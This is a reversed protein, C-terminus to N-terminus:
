KEEDVLTKNYEKIKDGLQLLLSINIVCNILYVIAVSKHYGGGMTDGALWLGIVIAMFVHLMISHSLADTKLKNMDHVGMRLIM